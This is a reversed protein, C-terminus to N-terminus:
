ITRTELPSRAAQLAKQRRLLPRHPILGAKVLLNAMKCVFLTCAVKMKYVTEPTGSITLVPGCSGSAFEEADAEPGLPALPVHDCAARSSIGTIFHSRLDLLCFGCTTNWCTQLNVIATVSKMVIGLRQACFPKTLRFRRTFCVKLHEEM